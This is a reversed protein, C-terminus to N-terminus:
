NGSGGCSTLGMKRSLFCAWRSYSEWPEPLDSVPFWPQSVEPSSNKVNLILAAPCEFFITGTASGESKMYVEAEDAERLWHSNWLACQGLIGVSMRNLDSIRAQSSDFRCGKKLVESKRVKSKSLWDNYRFLEYCHHLHIQFLHITEKLVAWLQLGLCTNGSSAIVGCVHRQNPPFPSTPM